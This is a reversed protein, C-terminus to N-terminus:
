IVVLVYMKSFDEEGSEMLLRITYRLRSTCLDRIGFLMETNTVLFTKTLAYWCNAIGFVGGTAKLWICPLEM